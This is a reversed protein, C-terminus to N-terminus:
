QQDELSTPWLREGTADLRQAYIDTNYIRHRDNRQDEWVVVANGSGDVMRRTTSPHREAITTSGCDMPWLRNRQTWVNRTSTLTALAISYERSCCCRREWGGGRCPFVQQQGSDSNVRLGHDMASHWGDLWQAYIDYNGNRFDEWVVIANDSGDAAIPPLSSHWGSDSNVRCRPWGIEWRMWGNRTSITTAM